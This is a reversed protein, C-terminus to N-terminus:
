CQHNKQKHYIQNMVIEDCYMYKYRVMYDLTSSNWVVLDPLGSRHYRYGQAFRTFIGSLM